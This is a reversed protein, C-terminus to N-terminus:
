TEPKLEANIPRPSHPTKDEIDISKKCRTRRTKKKRREKESKAMQAKSRQTMKEM